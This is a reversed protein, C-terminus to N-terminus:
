IKKYSFSSKKARFFPINYEIVMRKNYVIIVDKFNGGYYDFLPNIIYFNEDNNKIEIKKEKILLGSLSYSRLLNNAREYSVITPFPNASVYVKDFYKKEPHKIVSILKNPLVYFL